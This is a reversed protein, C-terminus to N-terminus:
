SNYETASVGYRYLALALNKMETSATSSQQIKYAYANISYTLTQMVQGNYSLEFVFEQAFATPLIGDTEITTGTVEVDVNNIKMTVNETTNIKVRITNVDAFYVTAFTFWAGFTEVGSANVPTAEIAPPTEARENSLGVVGTTALNEVNHNQQIQAAEGYRLMDSVFQKLTDSSSPANLINQAYTQISYEESDLELGNCVLKTTITEAMYHPPVQFSFKYRSGETVPSVEVDQNNIVYQLKADAFAESMSVYYNITIDESITLSSSDINASLEVPVLAVEKITNSEAYFKVYNYSADGNMTFYRGNEATISYTGSENKVITVNGDYTGNKDSYVAALDGDIGEYIAYKGDENKVIKFVYNM